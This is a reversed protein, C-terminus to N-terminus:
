IRVDEFEIPEGMNLDIGDTQYEISVAKGQASGDVYDLSEGPVARFSIEGEAGAVSARRKESVFIQLGEVPITSGVRVQEFPPLPATLRKKHYLTYEGEDEQLYGPKGDDFYIFWEDWFGDDYDYRVRGFVKFGRGRIEGAKGVAFRTPYDAIKAKKGTPDLGEDKVLLTSSCYECVVVKTFRSKLEVPAGCSPCSMSRGQAEM